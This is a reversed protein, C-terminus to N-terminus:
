LFVVRPNVSMRPAGRRMEVGVKDATMGEPVKSESQWLREEAALLSREDDNKPSDGFPGMMLMLRVRARLRRM